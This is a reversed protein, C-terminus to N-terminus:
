RTSRIKNLYLTIIKNAFKDPLKLIILTLVFNMIKKNLPKNKQYEHLSDLYNKKKTNDLNSLIDNRIEPLYSLTKTIAKHSLQYSNVRYKILSEEILHFKINFLIGARLFFDYDIAVPDKTEKFTCYNKVIASSILTTNVNIQQGDLLRINFDFIELDNYNSEYFYRLHKGNKDILEWNSYIITNESFQKATTVLIEISNQKLIDDPSFWKFWKGHIKKIGTNLASALGCNSQSIITIKDEFKKLIKLSNDTSGDDVVIIEINNYSQSFVSELTEKLYNESNYVPIIISVLDNVSKM